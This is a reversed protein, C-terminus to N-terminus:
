SMMMSRVTVLIKMLIKCSCVAKLVNQRLPNSKKYLVDVTLHLGHTYFLLQEIGSLRGFKEMVSAGDTARAIIHRKMLLTFDSQKNEVLGVIKGCSTIWNNSDDWPELIQHILTFKHKLLTSKM